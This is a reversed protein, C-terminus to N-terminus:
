EMLALNINEVAKSLSEELSNIGAIYAGFDRLVESEIATYQAPAPVYTGYSASEYFIEANDPIDEKKAIIDAASEIAPIAWISETLYEEQFKKGSLFKALTWAAEKHESNKFIPAGGVGIVSRLSGDKSPFPVVGYDEVPFDMNRLNEVYWLGSGMFALRNQVFLDVDSTGLKPSVEYTNILDYLFQWAEAAGEDNLACASWDDNLISSGFACLWPEITTFYANYFAYGYIDNNGGTNNQAVKQCMELFDQTTWGEQPYELGAGDLVNKNYYICMNNWVTPLSYTVGDIVHANRLNEDMADLSEALEEADREIYPDLPELLGSKAFVYMGESAIDAIDPGVGSAIDTSITQLMEGWSGANIAQIEVEIDPYIKNFEEIREQFDLLYGSNCAFVIKEKSGDSGGGCAVLTLGFCVAFVASLLVAILKKM